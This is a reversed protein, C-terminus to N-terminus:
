RKAHKLVEAKTYRGEHIPIGVKRATERLTQLPIIVPHKEAALHWCTWFKCWIAKVTCGEPGLHKCGECCLQGTNRDYDPDKRTAFCTTKGDVVKIRCPNYQRLIENGAEYLADYAVSLEDKTM